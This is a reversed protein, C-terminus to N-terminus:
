TTRPKTDGTCSLKGDAVRLCLDIEFGEAQKGPDLIDLMADAREGPGM